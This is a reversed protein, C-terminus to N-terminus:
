VHARGIGGGARRVKGEGPSAKSEVEDLEKLGVQIARRSVGTALSVASIGGHGIVRAESAAVLRRMRESLHPEILKFRRKTSEEIKHM